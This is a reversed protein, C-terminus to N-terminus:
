THNQNRRRRAMNLKLDLVKYEISGIFRSEFYNSALRQPNIAKGTCDYYYFERYEGYEDLSRIILFLDKNQKIQQVLSKIDNAVIKEHENAVPQQLTYNLLELITIKPDEKIKNTIDIFVADSGNRRALTLVYVLSEVM